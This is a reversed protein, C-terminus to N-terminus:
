CSDLPLTILLTANLSKHQNCWRTNSLSPKTKYSWALLSPKHDNDWLRSCGVRSVSVCTNITTITNGAPKSRTAWERWTQCDFLLRWRDKIGGAMGRLGTLLFPLNHLLLRIDRIKVVVRSRSSYTRIQIGLDFTELNAWSRQVAVIHKIAM